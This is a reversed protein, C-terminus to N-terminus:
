ASGRRAPAPHLRCGASAPDRRALHRGDPLRRDRHCSVGRRGARHRGRGHDRRLVQDAGVLDAIVLDLRQTADVELDRAALEQRHGPGRTRALGREHVDDTAQRPRRRALVEEVALIHRLHRLVFQRRHPIGLDTEDELAEVQQRARRREVVHLQGQEVATRRQLSGLPVLAGLVHQGCDAQGVTGAVM